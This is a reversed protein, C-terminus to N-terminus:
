VQLLDLFPVNFNKLNPFIQAIEGTMASGTAGFWRAVSATYTDAALTPLLRGQGVDVAGIQSPMPFYGTDAAGASQAGFIRGGKVSGGLVLHHGGWGHDSGQGNSRITRGFDSMTMTTVRDAISMAVTADYFTRLAEDLQALLTFHRGSLLTKGGADNGFQDGHNDFGGLSVFFVQRSTGLASRAAIMAAVSHLQAALPNTAPWTGPPPTKLAYSTPNSGIDYMATRVFDGMELSDRVVNAFQQEHLNARTAMYNQVFVDQPLSGTWNWSVAANPSRAISQTTDIVGNRYRMPMVNYPTSVDGKVFIGGSGFGISVPLRGSSALRFVDAMRGGWGTDAPADPHMTQWHMQMDSHSFLQPPLAHGPQQYQALATDRVLPACNAIVALKGARYVDGLRTMAPHLALGTSGLTQSSVALANQPLALGNNSAPGGRLASYATYEAGQYPVIMNHSDNGGFLFVCVLARYGTEDASPAADAVSVSFPLTPLASLAAARQLFDRRKM